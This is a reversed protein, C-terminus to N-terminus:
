AARSPHRIFHDILGHVRDSAMEPERFSRVVHFRSLDVSKAFDTVTMGAEILAKRFAKYRKVQRVPATSHKGM